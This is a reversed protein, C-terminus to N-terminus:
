IGKQVVKKQSRRDEELKRDEEQMKLVINRVLPQAPGGIHELLEDLVYWYSRACKSEPRSLVVLSGDETIAENYDKSEGITTKLLPVNLKSQQILDTVQEMVDKDTRWNHVKSFFAGAARLKTNRKQTRQMASIAGQFGEVGLIDPTIPFALFNVAAYVSMTPASLGPPCDFLGYAYDESVPQLIEAVREPWYPNNSKMDFDLTNAALTIPVLDPGRVVQGQIHRADVFRATEPDIYTPIIVDKLSIAGTTDLIVDKITPGEHTDRRHGLLTGTHGQPDIDLVLVRKGISALITALLVAHMTTSGTKVVGGKESTYAITLM